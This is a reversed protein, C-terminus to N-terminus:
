EQLSWLQWFPALGFGSSGLVEDIDGVRTATVRSGGLTYWSCSEVCSRSSLLCQYFPIYTGYTTPLGARPAWRTDEAETVGAIMAERPVRVGQCLGM